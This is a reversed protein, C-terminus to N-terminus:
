IGGQASPLIGSSLKVIDADTIVSRVVIVNDIANGSTNLGLGRLLIRLPGIGFSRNNGINSTYVSVGDRFINALGTIHNYRLAYHHWNGDLLLIPSISIQMNAIVIDQSVGAILRSAAIGIGSAQDPVGVGLENGYGDDSRMKGFFALTASQVLIHNIPPTPSPPSEFVVDANQMGVVCRGYPGNSYSFGSPTSLTGYIGLSNSLSDEFKYVGMWNEYINQSPKLLPLSLSGLIV